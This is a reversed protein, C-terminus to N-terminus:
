DVWSLRPDNMLIKDPFGSIFFLNEGDIYIYNNLLISNDVNMFAM